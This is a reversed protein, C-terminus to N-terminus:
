ATGGKEGHRSWYSHLPCGDDCKSSEPEECCCDGCIPCWSASVGTCKVPETRDLWDTIVAIMRRLLSRFKM